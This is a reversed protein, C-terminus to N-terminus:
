KKKLDKSLRPLMAYPTWSSKLEELTKGQQYKGKSTYDDGLIEEVEMFVVQGIKAGVPLVIKKDSNNTIELTWRNFYPVDGWGACKAIEIFNRGWSSRAKMMTTVNRGSGGIYEQTHALITEKPELLIIQSNPTVLTNKGFVDEFFLKTWAQHRAYTQSRLEEFLELATKAYLPEGWVKSVHEDNYPNYINFPLEVKQERFYNEGLSVDYSSTNLKKEDFPHITITKNELHRLIATNSLVSRTGYKEVLSNIVLKLKPEIDLEKILEELDKKTLDAM